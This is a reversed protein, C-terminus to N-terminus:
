NYNPSAHTRTRAKPSRNPSNRRSASFRTSATSGATSSFADFSTGDGLYEHRRAPAYEFRVGLVEAVEDPLLARRSVHQLRTTGNYSASCISVCRQSLLMNRRRRFPEVGSGAAIRSEAVEAMERSLFNAGLAEGYGVPGTSASIAPRILPRQPNASFKESQPEHRSSRAMCAVDIATSKTDAVRKKPHADSPVRM